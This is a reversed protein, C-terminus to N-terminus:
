RVGARDGSTTDLAAGATRAALDALLGRMGETAHIRRQREYEGEGHLRAELADLATDKGEAALVSRARGIVLAAVDGLPRMRGDVDHVRAELGHRLASFDNEALVAPPVDVRPPHEVAYRVLGQVLATLGAAHDLSCQADMARVELTGLWPHPRMEWCIYTYDAVGAALMHEEVRAEYEGYSRIVPPLGGRPYSRLLASRASALGSDLGHWFPSGASLARLVPIQNRIGRYAAVLALEDPLGVHVQFAATPTRIVGGFAAAIGDYRESRTFEFRGAEAAPHIAVGLAQQGADALASRCQRLSEALEAADACVPTNFEVQSAYVERSAAAPGVRSDLETILPGHDGTALNGDADVLLLEDEAGVTFEGGPRFATSLSM